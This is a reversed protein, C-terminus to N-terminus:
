PKVSHVTKLIAAHSTSDRPITVSYRPITITATLAAPFPDPTFFTCSLAVLIIHTNKRVYHNIHVTYFIVQEHNNILIINVYAFDHYFCYIYDYKNHWINLHEHWECSCMVFIWKFHQRYSSCSVSNVTQERQCNLFM